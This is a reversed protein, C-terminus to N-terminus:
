GRPLPAADRLPHLPSKRLPPYKKTTQMEIKPLTHPMIRKSKIQNPTPYSTSIALGPPTIRNQACLNQVQGIRKTQHTNKQGRENKKKKRYPDTSRKRKRPKELIVRRGPSIDKGARHKHNGSQRIRKIAIDRALPTQHRGKPLEDIGKRILDQDDRGHDSQHVQM